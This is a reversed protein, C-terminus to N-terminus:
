IGAKKGFVEHCHSMEWWGISDRHSLIQVIKGSTGVIIRVQCEINIDTGPTVIGNWWATNGISTITGTTTGPLHVTSRGSTWLYMMRGDNLRHEAIPPGHQIFFDDSPTGIYRAHLASNAQETSTCGPLAILLCLAVSAYCRWMLTIPTTQIVM